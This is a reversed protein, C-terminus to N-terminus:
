FGNPAWLVTETLGPGLGGGGQDLELTGGYKGPQMNLNTDDVLVGPQVVYPKKPLRESVPPLRGAKVKAAIMPSERYQGAAPGTTPVDSSSTGSADPRQTQTASCAGVVAGAAAVGLFGRRSFGVESM